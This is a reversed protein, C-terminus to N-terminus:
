RGFFRAISRKLKRGTRRDGGSSKSATNEPGANRNWDRGGAGGIFDQMVPRPESNLWEEYFEGYLQVIRRFVASQTDTDILLPVLRHRNEIMERCAGPNQECWSVKELVDSFDPAVPVYSSWPRVYAEFFVEWPYDEKLLVSNTSLQWGLSTAVDMGRISMLYRYKLQDSHAVYPRSFRAIEPVDNYHSVGGGQCFGIDFGPTDFYRSVFAYRPVTELHAVMLDRNLTGELFAKIVSKINARGGGFTSFGRVVGRWFVVPEKDEFPPEDPDLPTCFGDSGIGHVRPLPWLITNGNGPIRVYQFCPFEPNPQLVADKMDMLMPLRLGAAYLDNLQSVYRAARIKDGRKAKRDINNSWTGDVFTLGTAREAPVFTGDAPDHYILVPRAKGLRAAVDPLNLGPEAHCAGLQFRAQGEIFEERDV